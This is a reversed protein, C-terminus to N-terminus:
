RVSQRAAVTALQARRIAAHAAAAVVDPMSGRRFLEEMTELAVKANRFEAEAKVPAQVSDAIAMASRAQTVLPPAPAAGAASNQVVPYDYAGIEVTLPVNTLERARDNKFYINSSPKDVMYHPEFTVLIAFRDFRTTAELSGKAGSQELEGLNEFIGEPSVAWVVYSNMGGKAVQPFQLAEMQVAVRTVTGTREVEAKGKPGLTLSAKGKAAFQVVTVEAPTPPLLLLTALLATIM